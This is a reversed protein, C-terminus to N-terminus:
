SGLSVRLQISNDQTMREAEVGFGRAKLENMLKNYTFQQVIRGALEEGISELQSKSLPGSACVTCHGREDVGIEVTVGDRELVMREGRSMTEALVESHAVQVEVDNRTKEEVIPGPDMATFGLSAAAGLVAASIAPWSGIIVPTLVCVSSM